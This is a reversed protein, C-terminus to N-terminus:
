SRVKSAPQEASIRGAKMYSRTEPGITLLMDLISVAGDFPPHLQKYEPYDTYDMWELAIGATELLGADLYAKAAPGSLYTTAGAKSLLEVVREGKTKTLSYRRSDDFPTKIDLYEACIRKILTQNLESLNTWVTHLYVSELFGRFDEFYPANRYSAEIRQYHAWQWRADPLAVECIRRNLKSGVPVTLWEAGRPTKIKNRNRWDNKTYQVDDYFIFLDVKSIIDFYGRWPIYNSQLIAVRM